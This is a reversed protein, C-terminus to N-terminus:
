HNKSTENAQKNDSYKAPQILGSIMANWSGMDRYPIDDFLSRVISIVGFRPYMHILSAAM